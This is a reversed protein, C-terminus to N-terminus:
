KQALRLRLLLGLTPKIGLKKCLVLAKDKKQKKTKAM